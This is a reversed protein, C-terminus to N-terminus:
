NIDVVDTKAPDNDMSIDGAKEEFSTNNEEEPGHSKASEGIAL